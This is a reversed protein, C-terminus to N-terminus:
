LPLRRFVPRPLHRLGSMVWRLAAPVWVLDKGDAVARAIAVAVQEPTSALPAEPLGRTMKSRVFGPRVVVVRVGTGRLEEGLGIFFADLGAKTSGYVFNSRRVREAAVSSLVVIVGHGQRVLRPGLHSAVSVAGVYNVQAQAVATAPHQWSAEGTRLVGAAFVAMDLDPGPRGAVEEAFVQRMMVVHDDVLGADFDVVRVQLGVSELRTVADDRREGPRAALWVM